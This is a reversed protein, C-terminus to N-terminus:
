ALRIDVLNRRRSLYVIPSIRSIDIVHVLKQRVKEHGLSQKESGEFLTEATRLLEARCGKAAYSALRKLDRLAVRRKYGPQPSGM